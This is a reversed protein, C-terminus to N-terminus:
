GGSGLYTVEVKADTTTERIAKFNKLADNGWIEFIDLHNFVEGVPTSPSPDTGDETVRIPAVQVQIRAYVTNSTIKSPTLQKVASSVTLNERGLTRYIM